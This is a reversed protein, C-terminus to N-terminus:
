LFVLLLCLYILGSVLCSDMLETKQVPEWQEICYTYDIDAYQYWDLTHKM